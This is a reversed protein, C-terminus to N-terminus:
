QSKHEMYPCVEEEARQAQLVGGLDVEGLSVGIKGVVREVDGTKVSAGGM